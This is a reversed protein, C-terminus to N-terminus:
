TAICANPSAMGCESRRARSSPRTPELRIARTSRPAIGAQEWPAHRLAVDARDPIRRQLRPQGHHRLSRETGFAYEIVADFVESGVRTEARLAGDRRRIAHTVDPDDPDPLPSTRFRCRTSSHDATTPTPIGAPSRTTFSPRIASRAAHRAWTRPRSPSWRTGPATLGRGNWRREIGTVQRSESSLSPQSAM